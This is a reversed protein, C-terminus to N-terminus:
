FYEVSGIIRPLSRSQSKEEEASIKGFDKSARQEWLRSCQGDRPFQSTKNYTYMGETSFVVLCIVPLTEIADLDHSEIRSISVHSVRKRPYFLRSVTSGRRCTIGQRFEFNSEGSNGLRPEYCPKKRDVEDGM